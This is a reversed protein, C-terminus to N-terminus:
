PILHKLAKAVGDEDNSSTVYCSIEKVSDSANGMAVPYGVLSLLELDNEADGISMVERFDVGLRRLVERAGVAKSCGSPVVDVSERGGLWVNVADGWTRRVWERVQCVLEHPAWGTVKRIGLRQDRLFGLADEIYIADPIKRAAPHNFRPDILIRGDRVYAHFYIQRYTLEEVVSTSIERDLVKDILVKGSPDIVLAGNACILYVDHGLMDLLDKLMEPIRGTALVVQIGKQRIRQLERANECSLTGDSRLLTGDVDTMVLRIPM